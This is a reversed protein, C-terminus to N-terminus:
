LVRDLAAQRAAPYVRLAAGFAFLGFGLLAVVCTLAWRLADTGFWPRFLDSLAGTLIPGIGAGVISGVLLMMAMATARRQAPVIISLAAYIPAVWWSIFFAFALILAAAAGTQGPVLMFYVLGAPLAGGLGIMPVGIQWRPDRRALFDALRGAILGGMVSGIAAGGSVLGAEQPTLGHHRVLFSFNWAAFSYGCLLAFAAGVLLWRTIPMRLIERVAGVPAGHRAAPTAAHLGARLPERV